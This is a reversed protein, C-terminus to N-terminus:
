SDENTDGDEIEQKIVLLEDILERQGCYRQYAELDEHLRLIRHPFMEDLMAIFDVTSRPIDEIEDIM